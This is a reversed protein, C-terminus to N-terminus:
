TKLELGKVNKTTKENKNEKQTCKLCLIKGKIKYREYILYCGCNECNM